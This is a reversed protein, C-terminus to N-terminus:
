ALQEGRTGAGSFQARRSIGRQQQGFFRGKKPPRHRLPHLLEGRPAQARPQGQRLEADAIKREPDGSVPLRYPRM